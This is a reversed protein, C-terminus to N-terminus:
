PTPEEEVDALASKVAEISKHKLQFAQGWNGDQDSCYLSESTELDHLAATLAKRQREITARLKDITPQTMVQAYYIAAKELEHYAEIIEQGDKADEIEKAKLILNIRAGAKIEFETSPIADSM